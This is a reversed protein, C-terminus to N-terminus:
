ISNDDTSAQQVLDGVLKELDDLRAGVEDVRGVIAQSMQEFRAQMQELLRQVFVTLDASSAPTQPKEALEKNSNM